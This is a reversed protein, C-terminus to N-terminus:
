ETSTVKGIYRFTGPVLGRREAAAYALLQIPLIAAFEAFPADAIPLWAGHGPALPGITLTPVGYGALEAVLARDFAATPGPQMCVLVRVRADAIELPGHRFQASSQAESARRATEKLVLAGSHATALAPGRGVVIIPAEDFWAEDLGAVFAPAAAAVAHVQALAPAVVAAVQSEGLMRAALAHLALLAATYTRTAVGLEAGAFTDIVVAARRALTSAAANTVAVLPVSPALRELVRRAEITEGSQSIVVLATAADLTGGFHLLEALEIWHVPLGAAFLRLVAPYAAAHSSGMGSFVIRTIGPRSLIAAAADLPGGAAAHRQAAADLMAPQALIDERLASQM